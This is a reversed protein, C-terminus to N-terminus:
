KKSSTLSQPHYALVADWRWQEYFNDGLDLERIWVSANDGSRSGLMVDASARNSRVWALRGKSLITPDYEGYAASANSAKAAETLPQQGGTTLDIAFLTPYPRKTSDNDWESEAARSVIIRTPGDWVFGQDVKGQPTHSQPQASPDAITRLQKNATAMRGAGGIYALAAGEPSWEFWESNNVMEDVQRFIRGDSSIICLANGDASLSATPIALFAIWKGDASWRFPSTGIALLQESPKPLTYVTEFRSPDDAATLPIRLLKVQTWDMMDGDGDGSPKAQTSAFFGSGDPLWSFNSIEKVATTVPKHLEQAEVWSLEGQQVYALRSETPSWEYYGDALGVAQDRGSEVEIIHLERAGSREERTYAIWRGDQSWKPYRLLAGNAPAEALQREASGSQIWLKSSRIFAAQLGDTAAVKSQGSAQVSGLSDRAKSSLSSNVTFGIMVALVLLLAAAGTRVKM